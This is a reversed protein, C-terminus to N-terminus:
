STVKVGAQRCDEIFKQVSSAHNIRTVDDGEKDRVVYFSPYGGIHFKKTLKPYSDGNVHVKVVGKFAKKFKATSLIDKNFKKCYGCWDTYFYIVFADGNNLRQEELAKKYGSSGKYWGYSKLSQEAPATEEQSEVPAQEEKVPEPDPSRKSYIVLPESSYADSSLLVVVTASAAATM